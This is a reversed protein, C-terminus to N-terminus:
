HPRRLRLLRWTGAAARTKYIANWTPARLYRLPVFDYPTGHNIARVAARAIHLRGATHTLWTRLLVVNGQYRHITAAATRSVLDHTLRRDGGPVRFVGVVGPPRDGDDLVRVAKGIGTDHLVLVPLREDDCRTGR